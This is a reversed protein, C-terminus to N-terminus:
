QSGEHESGESNNAYRTYNSLAQKKPLRNENSVYDISADCNEYVIVENYGRLEAIIGEKDKQLGDM